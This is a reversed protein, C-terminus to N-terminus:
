PDAEPVALAGGQLVPSTGGVEPDIREVRLPVISGRGAEVEARSGYAFQIDFSRKHQIMVPVTADTDLWGLQDGAPDEIVTIPVPEGGCMRVAQEYEYVAYPEGNDRFLAFMQWTRSEAVAEAPDWTQGCCEYTDGPFMGSVISGHYLRECGGVDPCQSADM